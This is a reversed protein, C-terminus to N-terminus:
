NPHPRYRFLNTDLNLYICGDDGEVLYGTEAKKLITVQRNVTDLQFFEGGTTGYITGGDVVILNPRGLSSTYQVRDFSRQTWLVEGKDSNFTFLYGGDTLGYVTNELCVLSYVTKQQLIPVIEATKSFPEMRFVILKAEEAQSQLGEGVVSTGVILKDGCITLSYIRGDPIEHALIEHSSKDFMSIAGALKGPYPSTGMFLQGKYEQLTGHPRSQGMGVAGLFVPNDKVLDGQICYPQKPDYRWIEAGEYIGLYIFDKDSGLAQPEGPIWFSEKKDTKPNYSWLSRHGGMYINGDSGKVMSTIRASTGEVGMEQLDYILLSDDRLGYKWIYGSATVGWLGGRFASLFRTQHRYKPAAIKKLTQSDLNYKFLIGEPRTTLYISESDGPSIADITTQDTDVIAEVGSNQEDWVVLKGSPQTGAFVKGNSSLCSYVYSQDTLQEPLINEWECTLSNFIAFSAHAGVGAYIKHDAGVTLCRVLWEGPAVAGLDILEGKQLDYSFVKAHPYTGIYLQDDDIALSWVLTEEPITVLKILETKRPQYKYVEALKDGSRTGIYVTGDIDSAVCWAHTANGIPLVDEVREDSLNFIILRAPYEERTTLYLVEEGKANVGIQAGAIGLTNTVLGLDEFVFNNESTFDTKCGCFTLFLLILLIVARQHFVGQNTLKRIKYIGM